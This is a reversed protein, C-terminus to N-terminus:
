LHKNAMFTALDGMGTHRYEYALSLRQAIAEAQKALDANETQALYVVKEYNGFVFSLMDPHRDLGFGEWILKDFHRCLYDTLFFARMDEETRAEFVANGAFFSYCHPGPIRQIDGEEALVKDLLGGTGCDAYLIYIRRYKDRNARIKERIAEPILDPTNHLKAPLCAVDFLHWNNLEILQIIERALAGCAILLVEGRGRKFDHTQGPTLEMKGILHDARKQQM